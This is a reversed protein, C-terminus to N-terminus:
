LKSLEDCEQNLIRPIWSFNITNQRKRLAKVLEVAQKAWPAYAGERIKWKKNMQQIVLNSDGYVNLMCPPKGKRVDAFLKLGQILGVYEAINNSTAPGNSIIAHDTIKDTPTNLVYGYKAIGGPNPWCSGDFHLTYLDM